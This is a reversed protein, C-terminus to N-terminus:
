SWKAYKAKLENLSILDGDDKSEVHANIIGEQQYQSLSSWLAGDAHLSQSMADFFQEMMSRDNIQDILQHFQSKLEALEM